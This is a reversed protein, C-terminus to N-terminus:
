QLYDLIALECLAPGASGLGAEGFQFAHSGTEVLGFQHLFLFIKEAEHAVDLFFM